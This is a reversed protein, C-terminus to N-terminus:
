HGRVCELRRMSLLDVLPPQRANHAQATHKASRFSFWRIFLLVSLLMSSIARNPDITATLKGHQIKITSTTQNHKYNLQDEERSQKRLARNGFIGEPKRSLKNLINASSDPTATTRQLSPLLLFVHLNM